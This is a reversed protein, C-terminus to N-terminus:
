PKQADHNSTKNTTWLSGLVFGVVFTGFLLFARPLSFTYFLIRTEVTEVNQIILILGVLCLVGGGIMKLQHWFRNDIKM